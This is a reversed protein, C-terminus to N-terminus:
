WLLASMIMLIFASLGIGGTIAQGFREADVQRVVDGSDIAAVEADIGAIEGAAGHLGSTDLARSAADEVLALLRSLFGVEALANLRLKLAERRPRNRWCGLDRQLRQAVWKALVPM